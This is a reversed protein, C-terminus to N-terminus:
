DTSGQKLDQQSVTENLIWELYHRNGSSIPFATINPVEYPHRKTVYAVLPEVLTLRSRLFARAETAERVAGQWRYISIVPHVVHASSALRAEVLQRCLEVLWVRDPATIIVECLDETM